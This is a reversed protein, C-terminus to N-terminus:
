RASKKISKPKTARAKKVKGGPTLRENGLVRVNRV